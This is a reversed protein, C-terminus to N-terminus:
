EYKFIMNHKTINQKGFVWYKERVEGNKENVIKIFIEEDLPIRDVFWAGPNLNVSKDYIIENKNKTTTITCEVNLIDVSNNWYYLNIENTLEIGNEIIKCPKPMDKWISDWYGDSNVTDFKTKPFNVRCKGELETGELNDLNKRQYEIIHPIVYEIWKGYYGIKECLDWWDDDNKVLDFGDFLRVNYGLAHVDTIYNKNREWRKGLLYYDKSHVFDVKMQILEDIDFDTDYEIKFIKDFGLFKAIKSTIIFSNYISAVHDTVGILPVWNEFVGLDNKHYVFGREYKGSNSLHEPPEGVMFGDGYYFYYDVLADLEFSNNYKNLLGLKYEPFAERVQKILKKCTEARKDNSIYSDIFVINM